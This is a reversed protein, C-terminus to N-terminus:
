RGRKGGNPKSNGKGRRTGVSKKKKIEPLLLFNFGRKWFSTHSRIFTCKCCSGKSKHASAYVNPLSHPLSLSLTPGPSPWVWWCLLLLGDRERERRPLRTLDLRTHRSHVVLCWCIYLCLVCCMACCVSYLSKLHKWHPVSSLLLKNKQKTKLLESWEKETEFM